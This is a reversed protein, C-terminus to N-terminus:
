EVKSEAMAPARRAKPNARWGAWADLLGQLGMFGYGGVYLLLFPVSLYHGVSVALAATALAYGALALEGLVIWQFPLAYRSSAWHGAREELRFKPTRRFPTQRGTLGQVIAITNSLALGTGILALVPMYLM